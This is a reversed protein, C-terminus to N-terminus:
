HIAADKEEMLLIINKLATKTLTSQLKEFNNEKDIIAVKNFIKNKDLSYVYLSYIYKDKSKELKSFFTYSANTKKTFYIVKSLLPKRITLGDELILRETEMVPVVQYNNETLMHM